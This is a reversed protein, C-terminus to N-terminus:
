GFMGCLLRLFVESICSIFVAGWASRCVAGGVSGGGGGCVTGGWVTAGYMNYCISCKQYHILSMFSVYRGM